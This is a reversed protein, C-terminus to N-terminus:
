CSELEVPQGVQPKRASTARGARSSSTGTAAHRLRGGEREPRGPARLGGRQPQQGPEPCRPSPSATSGCRSRATTRTPGAPAGGTSSSSTRGTRSRRRVTHEGALQRGPAHPGDPQLRRGAAAPRDRDATADPGGRFGPLPAHAPAYQAEGPDFGNPDFYFRARYRSEDDPSEDVVYVGATDDVVARLGATPALASPGGTLDGGDAQASSWATLDGSEFGDAFIVDTSVEFAGLDPQGDRPVGRQDVTPAGTPTGADRALSAFPLEATPSFGGNWAPAVVLPDAWQLNVTVAPTEEVRQGSPLRPYEIVHSGAVTANINWPNWPNGGTNHALIVNRLTLRPGPRSTAPSSAM